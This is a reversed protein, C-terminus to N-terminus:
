AAARVPAVQSAVSMLLAADAQHETRRLVAAYDELLEAISADCL